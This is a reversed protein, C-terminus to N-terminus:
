VKQYLRIIGQKTFDFCTAAIEIQLLLLQTGVSTMIAHEVIVVRVDCELTLNITLTFSGPLPSTYRPSQFSSHRPARSVFCRERHPLEILPVQPGRLIHWTLNQFHADTEMPAGNQPFM